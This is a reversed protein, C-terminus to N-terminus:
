PRLLIRVLGGAIVRTLRGNVVLADSAGPMTRPVLIRDFRATITVAVVPVEIPREQRDATRVAMLRNGMRVQRCRDIDRRGAIPAHSCGIVGAGGRALRWMRTRARGSGACAHPAVGIAVVTLHLHALVIPVAVTLGIRRQGSGIIGLTLPDRLAVLCLKPNLDGRAGVIRLPAENTRFGDVRVAGRVAQHLVGIVGRPADERLVLRQADIAVLTGIRISVPAYYLRDVGATARTEAIGQSGGGRVFDTRRTPDAIAVIVVCRDTLCELLSETRAQRAVGQALCM